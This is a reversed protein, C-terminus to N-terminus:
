VMKKALSGGSKASIDDVILNVAITFSAIAGQEDYFLVLPSTVFAAALGRAINIFAIKRFSEFGALTASQVGVLTSLFLLLSGPLLLSSLDPRSLISRSLWPALGVTLAMMTGASVLSVFFVLSAIRGAKGPDKERYEAIYKTSTSGLGFGAFVGFMGLTSQVIGIEGYGERGLLRAVIIASLLALARASVGGLVSWFAGRALRYALPSGELRKRLSSPLSIM